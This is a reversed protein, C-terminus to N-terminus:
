AVSDGVRMAHGRLYADGEMPKKGPPQVALLRLAGEGTAILPGAGEVSLLTGPVGQESEVAAKLVKLTKGEQVDFYAGPWPTYARVRNRLQEAPLNWDIRGDEKKLKGCEVVQAPDQAWAKLRGEALGRAAQVLCQAGLKAMHDHLEGATEEGSLPVEEQLLVEGADMEKAVYMVSLGTLSDGNALAAQIPSAGRYKPLLSPHANISRLRPGDAVQM